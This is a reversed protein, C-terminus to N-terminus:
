ISSSTGNPVVDDDSWFGYLDHDMFVKVFTMTEEVWAM